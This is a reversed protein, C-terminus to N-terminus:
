QFLDLQDVLILRVKQLIKHHVIVIIIFIVLLLLLMHSKGQLRNGFEILGKSFSTLDAHKVLQIHIFPYSSPKLHELEQLLELALGIQFDLLGFFFSILAKAFVIRRKLAPVLFLKFLLQLFENDDSYVINHLEVAHCNRKLSKNLLKVQRSVLDFLERHM